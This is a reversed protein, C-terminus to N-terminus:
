TRSGSWASQTVIGNGRGDGRPLGRLQHQVATQGRELLAPRQCGGSYRRRLHRRDQRHQFLGDRESFGNEDTAIRSNSATNTSYRGPLVYGIPVTGPVPPRAARGDAFFDSEHQPDYKPQVKMDPFIQIPPRHKLSFRPLDRCSSTFVPRRNMASGAIAVVGRRDFHILHFLLTVHSLRAGADRASGGIEELLERTKTESFQPDRAEIVLFFGNDTVKAFRDWNFIPHYWKPLQNFIM